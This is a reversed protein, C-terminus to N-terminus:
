FAGADQRCSEVDWLVAPKASPHFRAPM